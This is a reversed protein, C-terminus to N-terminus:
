ADAEAIAGVRDCRRDGSRRVDPCQDLSEIRLKGLVLISVKTDECLRVSTMVPWLERVIELLLICFDIGTADIALLDVEDGETDVVSPEVGLDLLKGVNVVRVVVAILREDRRGLMSLVGISIVALAFRRDLLALAGAGICITFVRIRYAIITDFSREALRSIEINIVDANRGIIGIRRLSVHGVQM